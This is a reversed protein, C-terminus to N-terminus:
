GRKADAALWTPSSPEAEIYQKCCKLSTDVINQGFSFHDMSPWTSVWRILRLRREIMFAEIEDVHNPPLSRKASYGQLFSEYLVERNPLNDFSSMTIAM